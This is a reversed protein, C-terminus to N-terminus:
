RTLKIRDLKKTFLINSPIIDKHIRKNSHIFDIANILQKGIAKITELNISVEKIYRELNNGEIFEMITHFENVKGDKQMM